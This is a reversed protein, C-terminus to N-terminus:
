VVPLGQRIALREYLTVEKADATSIPKNDNLVPEAIPESLKTNLEAVEAELEVVRATKEESMKINAWTSVSGYMWDGGSKTFSAYVDGDEFQGGVKELWTKVADPLGEEEAVVEEDTEAVVEAPVDEEAKVEEVIEAPTEETVEETEETEEAKIEVTEEAKVETEVPTEESTEVEEEAPADEEAVAEKVEVLKSDADVMLTRGDEVVFEGEGIAETVENGETDEYTKTVEEGVEGWTATVALEPVLMEEFNVESLVVNIREKLREVLNKKMKKTKVKLNNQKSMEIARLERNLFAEVSFGKFEGEVADSFVEEDEIKFATYWAGEVAEEIGQSLVEDIREQSNLLYSEVLFADVTDKSEHELNVSKLNNVESHYKNRIAEVTDVSFYGNYEEGTEEDIRYILKNPIISLGAVIGKYEDEDSKLAIYKPKPKNEDLVVFESQMAPQSVLSITNVGDEKDDGILFEYVPLGM